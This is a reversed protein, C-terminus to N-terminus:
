TPMGALYRRPQYDSRGIATAVTSFEHEATDLRSAILVDPRRADLAAQAAALRRIGRTLATRAVGADALPSVEVALASLGALRHWDTPSASPLRRDRHSHVSHVSVGVFILVCGLFVWPLAPFTIGVPDPPTYPLPRDFLGAYRVKAWQQLYVNLINWQPQAQDAIKRGYQGYFGGTAVDATDKGFPGAYSVSYGYMVIIPTNPFQTALAPAYNPIAAGRAQQPFAVVMPPTNPFADSASKPIADLTAGPATYLRDAALGARVTNLEAASPNRWHVSSSTDSPDPEGLDSAMLSLILSTVDGDSFLSQWDGLDSPTASEGQYGVTLGIVKVNSGPLAYIRQTDAESIDPPAVVLHTKPEGRKGHVADAHRIAALVTAEDFGAVAGPLRVITSAALERKLEADSPITGTAPATTASGSGSDGAAAASGSATHTGYLFDATQKQSLVFVVVLAVAAVLSGAQILRVTTPVPPRIATRTSSVPSDAPGSGPAKTRHKRTKRRASKTASDAM